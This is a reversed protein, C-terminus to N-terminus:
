TEAVSNIEHAWALAEVMLRSVTADDIQCLDAYMVIEDPENSELAMVLHLADQMVGPTGLLAAKVPEPLNVQNLMEAMSQGM